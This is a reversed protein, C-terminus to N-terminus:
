WVRFSFQIKGYEKANEYFCDIIRGNMEFGLEFKSAPPGFMESEKRTASASFAECEHHIRFFVFCFSLIFFKQMMKGQVFIWWLRHVVNLIQLSFLWIDNDVYITVSPSTITCVDKFFWNILTEEKLTNRHQILICFRTQNSLNAIKQERNGTFIASWNPNIDVLGFGKKMM